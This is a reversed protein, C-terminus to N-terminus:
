GNKSEWKLFDKIAKIMLEENRALCVTKYFTPNTDQMRKLIVELCYLVYSIPYM